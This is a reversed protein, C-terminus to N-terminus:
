RIGGATQPSDRICMKFHLRIRHYEECDLIRLGHFCGPPIIVLSGPRPIYTRGEVMYEVNGTIMYYIEYSGHCHMKYEMDAENSRTHAYIVKSTKFSEEQYLSTYLLCSYINPADLTGNIWIIPVQGAAEIIYKNDDADVENFSSGILVIGDVRKQLLLSM